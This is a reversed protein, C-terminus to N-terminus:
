KSDIKKEKTDSGRYLKLEKSLNGFGVSFVINKRGGASEIFGARLDAACDNDLAISDDPALRIKGYHIISSESKNTFIPLTTLKFRSFEKGCSECSKGLQSSDRTQYEQLCSGNKNTMKTILPM